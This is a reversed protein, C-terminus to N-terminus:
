FGADFFVGEIPFFAVVWQCKEWVFIALLKRFAIVM